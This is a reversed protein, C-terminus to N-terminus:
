PVHVCAYLNSNRVSFKYKGNTCHKYFPSGVPQQPWSPHAMILQYSDVIPFAHPNKTKTKFLVARMGSSAM